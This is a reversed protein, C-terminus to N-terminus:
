GRQTFRGGELVLLPNLFFLDQYKYNFYKFLEREKGCKTVLIDNDLKLQLTV